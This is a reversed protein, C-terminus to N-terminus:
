FLISTSTSNFQVASSAIFMYYMTAPFVPGSNFNISLQPQGTPVGSDQMIASQGELDIIYIPYLTEWAGATIAPASEYEDDIGYVKRRFEVIEKYFEVYNTQFTQSNVLSFPYQQGNYQLQFYNIDLADFTSYNCGGSGDRGGTSGIPANTDAAPNVTGNMQFAFIFHSPKSNGPGNLTSQFQSQGAAISLTNDFHRMYVVTQPKDEKIFDNILEREIHPNPEYTRLLCYLKQISIPMTGANQINNVGATGTFSTGARPVITPAVVTNLAILSQPFTIDSAAITTNSLDQVFFRYNTGSYTTTDMTFNMEIRAGRVLSNCSEFFTFIHNLPIRFTFTLAAGNATALTTSGNLASNKMYKSRADFGSSYKYNLAPSATTTTTVVNTISNCCNRMGGSITSPNVLATNPDQVASGATASTFFQHDDIQWGRTLAESSTSFSHSYKLLNLMTNFTHSPTRILEVQTGNVVLECQSFMAMCANNAFAIMDGQTWNTITGTKTVALQFTLYSKKPDFLRTPDSPIQINITAGSLSNNIPYYYLYKATKTSQDLYVKKDLDYIPSYELKIDKSEM